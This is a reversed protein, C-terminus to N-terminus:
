LFATQYIAFAGATCHRTAHAKDDRVTRSLGHESMLIVIGICPAIWHISPVSTLGFIICGVAFMLGSIMPM